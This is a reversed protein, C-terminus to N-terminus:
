PADGGPGKGAKKDKAELTFSLFALKFAAKVDGKRWLAFVIVSCVVLGLVAMGNGM